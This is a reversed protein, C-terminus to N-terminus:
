FNCVDYFTRFFQKNEKISIISTEDGISEIKHAFKPNKMKYIKSILYMLYDDDFIWEDKADSGDSHKSFQFKKLNKISYIRRQYDKHYFRIEIGHIDFKFNFYIIDKKHKKYEDNQSIFTDLDSNLRDFIQNRVEGFKLDNFIHTM